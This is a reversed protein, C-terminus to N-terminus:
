LSKWLRSYRIIDPPLVSTDEVCPLVKKIVYEYKKNDLKSGGGTAIFGLVYATPNKHEVAELQAATELMRTISQDSINVGECNNLRRSISDVYIRFSEIPEMMAREVRDVPMAGIYGAGPLGVRDWDKGVPQGFIPYQEPSSPWDDDFEM